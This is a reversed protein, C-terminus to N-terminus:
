FKKAYPYLYLIARLGLFYWIYIPAIACSVFFGAPIKPLIGVPKETM